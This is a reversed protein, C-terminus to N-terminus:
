ACHKKQCGKPCYKTCEAASDYVRKICKFKGVQDRCKFDQPIETMLYEGSCNRAQPVSPDDFL